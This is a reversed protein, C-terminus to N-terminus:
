KYREYNKQNAKLYGRWGVFYPALFSYVRYALKEKLTNSRGQVAYCDYVYRHLKEFVVYLSYKM